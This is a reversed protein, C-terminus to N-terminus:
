LRATRASDKVGGGPAEAREPALGLAIREIGALDRTFEVSAYGSERMLRSTADAQGHGIELALLGGPRLYKWADRIIRRVTDLGDSGALLARPDEFDRITRSLSTWAGAEVYPPNACIADFTEGHKVLDFLDGTRCEVRDGAGHRQANRAALAAYRPEIDAAVVRANPANMAIAVAVCGTGTCLDLIQAPRDGIHSLVAEVLHETEPRPVLAPPQVEFELSFFEWTGFLYALPEGRARRALLEELEASEPALERLRALLATRSCGMEHSLILEADLRPTQTVGALRREAGRIWEAVAPM